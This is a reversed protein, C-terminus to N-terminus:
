PWVYFDFRTGQYGDEFTITAKKGNMGRIDYGGSFTKPPIELEKSYHFTREESFPAAGLGELLELIDVSENIIMSLHELPSNHENQLWNSLFEKISRASLSKERLSLRLSNSVLFADMNFKLESFGEIFISLYKRNSKLFFELEEQNEFPIKFMITETTVPTLIELAKKAFSSSCNAMIYLHRVEKLIALADCVDLQSSGHLNIQFISYFDLVDLVRELWKSLPITGNVTKTKIHLRLPKDYNGLSALISLHNSDVLFSITKVTPKWLIKVLNKARNSLLSFAIIGSPEM